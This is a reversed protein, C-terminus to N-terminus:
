MLHLFTHFSSHESLQRFPQINGVHMDDIQCLLRDFIFILIFGLYAICNDDSSKLSLSEGSHAFGDSMTSM